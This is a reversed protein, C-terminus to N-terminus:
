YKVDLNRQSITTQIKIKIGEKGEIDLFMTVAPQLNDEQGWGSDEIKFSKVLLGPSTLALATQFNAASSDTSRREKIQNANIDLFFEQCQNQYSLFRIRDKSANTEYNYKAGATTLCSGSLDKRAMRIARSIYEKAYSVQDLVQQQALINRQSRMAMVFIGIALGTVISFIAVAALFEVITFGSIKVERMTVMQM